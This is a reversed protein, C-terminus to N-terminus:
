RYKKKKVCCQVCGHLYHQGYSFTFRVSTCMGLPINLSCVQLQVVGTHLQEKVKDIKKLILYQYGHIQKSFTKVLCVYLSIYRNNVTNIQCLFEDRSCTFNSLPM